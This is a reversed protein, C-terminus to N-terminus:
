EKVTIKKKGKCMKCEHWFNFLLYKGEGQCEYCKKEVERQECSDDGFYYDFYLCDDDEESYGVSM